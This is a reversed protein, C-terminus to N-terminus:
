WQTPRQSSSSIPSWSLAPRALKTGTDTSFFFDCFLLPDVSIALAWFVWRWGLSASLFADGIPGVVPGLLPCMAWLAIAKGREEQMFLDAVTGGGFPLLGRFGGHRTFFRFVILMDLSSSPACAMTFIQCVLREHRPVVPSRGYLEATQTSNGASQADTSSELEHAQRGSLPALLVPGFHTEWSTFPYQLPPQCHTERVSNAWSNLYVGSCVIAQPSRARYKNAPHLDRLYM